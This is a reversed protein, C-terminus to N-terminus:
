HQKPQGDNEALRDKERSRRVWENHRRHHEHAEARERDFADIIERATSRQQGNEGMFEIGQTGPEQDPEAM